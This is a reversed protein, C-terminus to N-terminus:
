SIQWKSRRRGLQRQVLNILIILYWNFIQLMRRELNGVTRQPQGIWSTRMHRIAQNPGKKQKLLPEGGPDPLLQSELFYIAPSLDPYIKRYEEIVYEPKIDVRM